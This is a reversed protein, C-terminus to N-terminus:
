QTSPSESVISDGRPVQGKSNHCSEMVEKSQKREFDSLKNRFAIPMQLCSPCGPTTQNDILKRGNHKAFEIQLLHDM